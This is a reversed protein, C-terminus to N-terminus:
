DSGKKIEIIYYSSKLTSRDFCLCMNKLISMLLNQKHSKDSEKFVSDIIKIKRKHYEVAAIWHFYSDTAIICTNGSKLAKLLHKSFVQGSKTQYSKYEFGLAEIAIFLNNEDTGNSTTNSLQRIYSESIDKGLKLLCNRIAASGCSFKKEQLKYKM